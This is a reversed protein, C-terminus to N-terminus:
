RHLRRMDQAPVVRTEGNVSSCYIMTDLLRARSQQFRGPYKAQLDVLSATGYHERLQRPSVYCCKEYLYPRARVTMWQQWNAARYSCGTFGLNPDVATVLLDAASTNNRLFVRVRSLLSSIANHPATDISYVRSLDWICEPPIAFQSRMHNAVCRWQLLSLGCLTVPLRRVPDVLAFYHSDPRASRLYHLRTLVPLARSSDIEEFVLDRLPFEEFPVYGRAAHTDDRLREASIRLERQAQRRTIWGKSSAVRPLHLLARVALARPEVGVRQATQRVLAGFSSALLFPRCEDLHLGAGAGAPSSDRGKEVTQSLYRSGSSRVLYEFEGGGLVYESTLGTTSSGGATINAAVFLDTGGLAALRAGFPMQPKGNPVLTTDMAQTPPRVRRGPTALQRM